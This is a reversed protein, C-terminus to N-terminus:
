SFQSDNFIREVTETTVTGTKKSRIKVASDGSVCEDIMLFSIAAGRAADKSSSVSKVQSGNSLRISLRNDEVAPVRLWSPLNDNGFRIKTVVEKGAEQTKSIILCYKDKHFIILWLIYAACLTSIGMQRAKLVINKNHNQLDRLTQEQFPYLDFKTRGLVPNQIFVYKKTFYVVDAACKKYESKILLKLKLNKESM